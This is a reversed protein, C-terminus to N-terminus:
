LLTRRDPLVGPELRRITAEYGEAEMARPNAERVRRIAEEPTSAEYTVLYGALIAGTRDKGAYCHVLTPNGAELQGHIFAWVPLAQHIFAKQMGESHLLVPPFQARHHIFGYPTLDEVPVDTPLSVIARFGADYLAQPDWPQRTPGPRG